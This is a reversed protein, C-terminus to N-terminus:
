DSLGILKATALTKGKADKAELVFNYHHVGNPPFPGCWTTKQVIGDQWNKEAPIGKPLATYFGPINTIDWHIYGNAPLDNDVCYLSFSVTGEPVNSWQLAPSKNGGRSSCYPPMMTNNKFASSSLTFKVDSLGQKEAAFVMGSCGLLIVLCFISIKKLM